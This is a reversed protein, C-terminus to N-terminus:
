VNYPQPKLQASLRLPHGPYGEKTLTLYHIKKPNKIFTRYFKKPVKFSPLGYAHVWLGTLEMMSKIYITNLENIEKNVSKVRKKDSTRQPSLNGVYLGGYGWDRTYRIIRRLTADDKEGDATSPNHM